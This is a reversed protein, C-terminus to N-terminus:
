IRLLDGPLPLTRLLLPRDRRRLPTGRRPSPDLVLDALLVAGTAQVSITPSVRASALGAHGHDPTDSDHEHGHELSMGAVHPHDHGHHVAEHIATGMAALWPLALGLLLWPTLHRRSSRSM